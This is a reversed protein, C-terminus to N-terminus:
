ISHSEEPKLNRCNSKETIAKEQESNRLLIIMEGSKPSCTVTFKRDRLIRAIDELLAESPYENVRSLSTIWLGCPNEMAFSSVEQFMMSFGRIELTLTYKSFHWLTVAANATARQSTFIIHLEQNCLGVLNPTVDLETFLREFSKLTQLTIPVDHPHVRLVLRNVLPNVASSLFSLSAPSVNTMNRIVVYNRYFQESEAETLNFGSGHFM